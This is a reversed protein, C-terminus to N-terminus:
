RALERRADEIADTYRADAAAQHDAPFRMSSTAMMMDHAEIIRELVARYRDREEQAVLDPERRMEEMLASAQWAYQEATLVNWAERFRRVAVLSAAARGFEDDDTTAFAVEAIRREAPTLNWEFPKQEDSM